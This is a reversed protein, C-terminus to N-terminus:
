LFSLRGGRDDQAYGFSRSTKFLNSWGNYWSSHAVELFLASWTKKDANIRKDATLFKKRGLFTEVNVSRETMTVKNRHFDSTDFGENAVRAHAVPDKNFDDGVLEILGSFM